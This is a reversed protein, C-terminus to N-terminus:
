IHVCIRWMVSVDVGGCAMVWVCVSVWLARLCMRLRFEVIEVSTYIIKKENIRRVFKGVSDDHASDNYASWYERAATRKGTHSHACLRRRKHGFSFVVASDFSIKKWYFQVLMSYSVASDYAVLLDFFFFFLFILFSNFQTFHSFRFLM